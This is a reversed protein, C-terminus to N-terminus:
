IFIIVLAAGACIGLTQYSRLRSDKNVCLQTLDNRCKKRTAELGKLQGDLDFRGLFDGLYELASKTWQPIERISVLVSQICESVSTAAQDDLENSLKLFFYRIFGKSEGAAQRCLDPLPTLHYQLECEMYDLIRILEQLSAIEKKHRAAILYGMGGCASIVFIAGILKLIM